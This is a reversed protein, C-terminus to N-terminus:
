AVVKITFTLINWSIIYSVTMKKHEQLMTIKKKKEKKKKTLLPAM